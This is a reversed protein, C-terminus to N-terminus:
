VNTNLWILIDNYVEQRNLENLMEHRGGPYSKNQVRFGIKEYFHETKDTGKGYDSVPDHDGSVLLMPLGAKYNNLIKTTLIIELAASFEYFFSSPHIKGCYDNAVYFAVKEKDNTLWDFPTQPNKIRKNYGGFVLRDISKNIHKLGNKKMDKYALWKGFKVSLMSPFGTGSLVVGNFLYSYDILFDRTIFSGMSHGIIFIPLDTHMSKSYSLINKIDEKMKYWGNEGLYGLMEANPGHGRQNIGYVVYGNDSLFTAFADYREIIEAMGHVLIVIGKLQDDVSSQWIYGCLDIEEFSNITLTNRM